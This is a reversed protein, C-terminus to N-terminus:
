WVMVPGSRFQYKKPMLPKMAGLVCYGLADSHHSREPDSKDPQDTGEKYVMFKLDRILDRCRPNVKMRRRGMADCILWNTAQYKDRVAYPTRREYIRIGSKELLTHDTTSADVAATKRAGGTPDPYAMLSRGQYKARLIRGLQETTSNHLTVEDIVWLEEGVIRCVIAPLTAVNFDIGIKLEGVGDDDAEETINAEGFDPFVRGTPAEFSAEYEARFTRPDLMARAQEVEEPEVWGGDITTYQHRGWGSDAQGADDWLDAFWSQVLGAPTTTFLASGQRDSLAPRLVEFWLEKQLYAAEDLCALDLSRGRLRDPRDGSKVEIRSGNVLQMELISQSTKTIWSDPVMDTLTRWLTARGMEFTPALMLVNARPKQLATHLAKACALYSKGFRRGCTAMVFRAPDDFVLSAKPKLALHLQSSM